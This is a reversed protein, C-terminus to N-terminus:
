MREALAPEINLDRALTVSAAGLLAGPRKFMSGDIARAVDNWESRSLHKLQSEGRALALHTCLLLIVQSDPSVTATSVVRRGRWRDDGICRSVSTRERRHAARVRM